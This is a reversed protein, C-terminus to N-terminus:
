FNFYLFPNYSQGLMEHVGLIFLIPLIIKLYKVGVLEQTNKGFFAILGGFFLVYLHHLELFNYSYSDTIGKYNQFSSLFDCLQILSEARFPIWLLFACLIVVSRKLFRPLSLKVFGMNKNIRELILIMGHGAGWLIFTWKAGHWAGCLLMVISLNLYTRLSGKRNGGLSVYLYDRFWSSLSIHWRRWFDTVSTAKYPSNFNIPFKFGFFYGLGIAM